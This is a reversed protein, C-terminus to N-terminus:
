EAAIHSLVAKITTQRQRLLASIDAWVGAPIPREDAMWQRIRRGDSLGLDRSLDTQWRDGYLAQGATSLEAPGYKKAAAMAGIYQYYGIWFPGQDEINVGGKPDSLDAPLKDIIHSIADQDAAQFKDTKQLLALGTAPAVLLQDLIADDVCDHQWIARALQGLTHM